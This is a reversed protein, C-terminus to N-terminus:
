TKRKEELSGSPNNSTKHEKTVGRPVPLLAFRRHAVAALTM